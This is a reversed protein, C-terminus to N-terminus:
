PCEDLNSLLAYIRKIEETDKELNPMVHNAFGNRTQFNLTTVACDSCLSFGTSVVKSFKSFDQTDVFGFIEDLVPKELLRNRFDEQANCLYNGNSNVAAILRVTGSFGGVSMLSLTWADKQPPLFYYLDVASPPIGNSLKKKKKKDTKTQANMKLSYEDNSPLYQASSFISLSFIALLFFATKRIM